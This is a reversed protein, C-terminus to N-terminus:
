ATTATSASITSRTTWFRKRHLCLEQAWLSPRKFIMSRTSNTALKTSINWSLISFDINQVQYDGQTVVNRDFPTKLNFRVAEVNAIDNAVLLETGSKGKEKRTRGLVPRFVLDPSDSSSWGVRSMSSGQISHLVCCHSRSFDHAHSPRMKGNDIVVTASADENAHITDPTSAADVFRFITSDSDDESKM